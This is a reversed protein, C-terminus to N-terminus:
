HTFIYKVPCQIDYQVVAREASVKNPYRTALQKRQTTTYGNGPEAILYTGLPFRLVYQKPTLNKM